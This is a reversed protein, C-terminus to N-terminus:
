SSVLVAVENMAEIGFFVVSRESERGEVSQTM